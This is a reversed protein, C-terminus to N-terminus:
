RDPAVVELAFRRGALYDDIVELVMPSRLQPYARAVQARSLWVPGIIGVDLSLEPRHRVATGIFTTRVYTTNNAPAQYLDVGVVGTLTVEWGTEELTERRAAQQLSENAELHGAPQNLREQGNILERVLLFRGDREIVCAVTVHPLFRTV